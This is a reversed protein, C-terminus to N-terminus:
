KHQRAEDVRMDVRTVGALGVFLVEGVRRARGGGATDGGQQIHGVRNWGDAARRDERLAGLLVCLDCIRVEAQPTYRKASLIEGLNVAQEGRACDSYLQEPAIRQVALGLRQDVVEGVFRRLVQDLRGAVPVDQRQAALHRADPAQQGRM